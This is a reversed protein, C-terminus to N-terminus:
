FHSVTFTSGCDGQANIYSFNVKKGDLPVMFQIEILKSGTCDLKFIMDTSNQILEILEDRNITIQNEGASNLAENLAIPVKNEAFDIMNLYYEEQTFTSCSGHKIWEHRDLDSQTGPMWELIATATEQSIDPEPLRNEPLWYQRDKAILEDSVGCYYLSAHHTDLPWMGHLILKTKSTESPNQCEPLGSYSPNSCFTAHWSMAYVNYAYEKPLTVCQYTEEDLLATPQCVCIPNDNEVKCSGAGCDYTECSTIIFVCVGNDNLKANSSCSCTAKDDVIVCNGEGCDVDVCTKEITKSDNCGFYLVSLTLFIFFKISYKM